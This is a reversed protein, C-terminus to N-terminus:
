CHSTMVRLAHPLSSLHAYHFISANASYIPRLSSVQLCLTCTRGYLFICMRTISEIKGRFKLSLIQRQGLRQKNGHHPRLLRQHQGAPHEDPCPRRPVPVQIISLPLPQFHCVVTIVFVLRHCPVGNGHFAYLLPQEM